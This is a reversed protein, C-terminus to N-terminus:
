AGHETSRSCIFRRQWPVRGYQQLLGNLALVYADKEFGETTKQEEDIGWESGHLALEPQRADGAGGRRYEKASQVGKDPQCVAAKDETSFVGWPASM